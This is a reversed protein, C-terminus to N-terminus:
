ARRHGQLWWEKSTPNSRGAAAGSRQSPYSREAMGASDCGPVKPGKNLHEYLQVLQNEEQFRPKNVQLM